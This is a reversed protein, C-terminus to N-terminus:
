DGFLKQYGELIDAQVKEYSHSDQIKRMNASSAKLVFSKDQLIKEVAGRFAVPDRPILFGNVGHEIWDEMCATNSQIPIAGGGMAELTSSPVGDSRSIAVHALADGFLRLTEEHSLSGKLHTKVDLGFLMGWLKAILPVHYDCSYIVIRYQGLIQRRLSTLQFISWLAMGWRNSYGKVLITLREDSSANSAPRLGGSNITKKFLCGEKTKSKMYDYDRSCEYFVLDVLSLARDIRQSHKSFRSFWYIDSGYNSYACKTGLEANLGALLYGAHQMEFFHILDFDGNAICHKLGRKRTALGPIKDVIYTLWPLRPSNKAITVRHGYNDLVTQLKSNISRSPSSSFLELHYDSGEAVAEVWRAFHPSDLFGIMLLKRM